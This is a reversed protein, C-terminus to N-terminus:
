WGRVYMGTCLLEDYIISVENRGVLNEAVIVSIGSMNGLKRNEVKVTEINLSLPSLVIVEPQILPLESLAQKILPALPDSASIKDIVELVKLKVSNYNEVIIQMNIAISEEISLATENPIFKYEHLLPESVYRRQKESPYIGKIQVFGSRCSIENNINLQDILM